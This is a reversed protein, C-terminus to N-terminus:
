ADYAGATAEGGTGTWNTHVKEGPKDLREYTHAGFYDRQAQILNAPLHASRYGDFFSLGASMAPAPIGLLAAQAVVRRWAGQATQLADKFFPALLLNPLEPDSQYAAMIDNLFRSRIICGGRWMQAIGAYNLNWGHLNAAERFLMYGQAYSVIKSAYLAAELDKLFAEKDPAEADSPGSLVSSAAVREDKLASLFRAFVAEGILTLPVGGELASAVTWKGTGKQGASDLIKDVLPQGDDDKVTFIDATIEILYSDLRGANWKAFVEGMEAANMSLANKMLSYAEAILQMDGYEIGNHVMKVYHGAGGEGVWDCCPVGDVHASIDQLINKVHPWAEKSGGPMMSPGHRAGEEGGSVGTGIFRLGQKELAMVRRATDHFSSNGGDIVIDGAELHPALEELVIDVPAGAQVMLMVRRPRKLAALMDELEEFGVVSMDKAPGNVFNVMKSTTRNTVAVRYGHDSMNMVLNQGMVALGVLGIDAKTDDVANDAVDNM